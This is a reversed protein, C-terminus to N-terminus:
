ESDQDDMITAVPTLNDPFPSQSPTSIAKVSVSGVTRKLYRTVDDELLWASGANKEM